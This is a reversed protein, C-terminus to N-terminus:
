LLMTLQNMRLLALNMVGKFLRAQTFIIRSRSEDEYWKVIIEVVDNTGPNSRDIFVSELISDHWYCDNFDFKMAHYINSLTPKCADSPSQTEKLPIM